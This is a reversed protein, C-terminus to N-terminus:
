LPGNFKSRASETKGGFFCSFYLAVRTNEVNQFRLNDWQGFTTMSKKEKNEIM